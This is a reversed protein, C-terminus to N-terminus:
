RVLGKAELSWVRIGSNLPNSLQEYGFILLEDDSTLLCKTISLNRNRFTISRLEEDVGDLLSPFHYVGLSGENGLLIMKDGDKSLYLSEPVGVNTELVMPEEILVTSIRDRKINWIRITRDYSGSVIQEGSPSVMLTSIWGNHGYLTVTEPSVKTSALNWLRVTNDQSGTALWQGSPSFAIRTIGLQHGRLVFPEDSVGRVTLDYVRVVTDKSGIALRDSNPSFQIVQVPSPMSPITIAMPVIGSIMQRLNWLLVPHPPSGQAAGFAALWQGNPSIQLDQLEPVRETFTILADAPNNLQVDWIRITGDKQGGIIWRLDPTFVFKVYETKRSPDLPYGLRKGNQTSHLDWLWVAKDQLQAILYRSDPSLTMTEVAPASDLLPEGWTQSAFANGLIWYMDEPLPQGLQEYIKVARLAQEISEIPDIALSEKAAEMSEDAMELTVAPAPPLPPAAESASNATLMNPPSMSGAFIDQVPEFPSVPFESRASPRTLSQFPDGDSPFSWATREEIEGPLPSPPSLFPPISATIPEPPTFTQALPLTPSIVVSAREQPILEIIETKVIESEIDVVAVSTEILTEEHMWHSQVIFLVTSILVCVQLTVTWALITRRRNRRKQIQIGLEVAIAEGSPDGTLLPCTEVTCLLPVPPSVGGQEQATENNQSEEPISIQEPQQSTPLVNEEGCAPCVMVTASGSGTFSFEFECHKCCVQKHTFFDIM